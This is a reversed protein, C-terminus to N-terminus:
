FNFAVRGRIGIPNMGPDIHTLRWFVDIRIVKLINELGLSCEAYPVNGFKKTFNPLEMEINHRSSISGYTIRGSSVVRLKMEKVFPIADFFLGGWHNEVYGGIYRDSIFEFFNLMNFTSTLLWYSQNGEHVKLFPYAATGFVNGCNVGYNIRGLIGIKANHDMRFEIKQYNYDGGFLGKVGFIGQIAFIPFRSRLTSRDFAGSIFEEDKTWRFRATFESTTIKHITDYTNYLSNFKIYNALGLPVFDKREFGCYIVIDKKIDKEINVGIREVFTLKDLPGTRFLTGFTSGVSTATSSQGIQEIDYSYFATIMGRKKPTINYRISGGYKFKEDFTGYALRGGIELRKSFNNSTRLSLAFRNQEIPNRSYLGSAKGIEFKGLPYYSTSAFYTLKKMTKFLPLNNLTDIMENIGSEQVSLPIHRNLNWFEQNRMKASDLIEVTFDSKYYEDEKPKNIIYNKRTATKRGILGNLGSNRTVKIDALMREYVLMWVEKEVQDYKQEFYFDQVFNMNAGPSIKAEISKVAYTTDHIWMVGQFTLDSSRKPKFTLKYCWKNDIFTSDELYFRYFTRAYNALPSIFSQNFLKISNDYVNIDVYMDGLFQNLQLSTVGSIYTASMIERKKKPNNKFYFQSISESLLAPLFPKQKSSDIYESLVDFKEIMTKDVVNGGVNDIDLQVKSYLEYEYADLKEKNNIHKNAIVRKHLTTSPFEDPPLIKVEELEDVKISLIINIEQPKDLIIKVVKRKYGSYDFILSDTAYYTELIFYGNTDTQTGIKSDQFRVTVYPLVENSVADKVIGFVKTQQAFSFNTIILLLFSIRFLMSM